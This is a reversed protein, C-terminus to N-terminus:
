YIFKWTRAQQILKGKLMRFFEAPDEKLEVNVNLKHAGTDADQKLVIQIGISENAISLEHQNM